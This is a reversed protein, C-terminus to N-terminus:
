IFFNYKHMVIVKATCDKHHLGYKEPKSQCMKNPKPSALWFEMFVLHHEIPNPNAKIIPPSERAGHDWLERDEEKVDSIGTVTFYTGEHPLPSVRCMSLPVREKLPQNFRTLNLCAANEGKWSGRKICPTPSHLRFWLAEWETGAAASIALQGSVSFLGERRMPKETHWLQLTFAPVNDKRDILVLRKLPGTILKLLPKCNILCHNKFILAM